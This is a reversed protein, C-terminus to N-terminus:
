EHCKKGPTKIERIDVQFGETAALQSQSRIINSAVCQVRRKGAMSSTLRLSSGRYMDRDVYWYMSPPPNASASCTISQGVDLVTTVKLDPSITVNSPADALCGFGSL